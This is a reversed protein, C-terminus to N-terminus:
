SESSSNPSIVGLYFVNIFLISIDFTGICVFVVPYGFCVEFACLVLYIKEGICSFLDFDVLCSCEFYYCSLFVM